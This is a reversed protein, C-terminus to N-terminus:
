PEEKTNLDGNIAHIIEKFDEESTPTFFAPEYLDRGSTLAAGPQANSKEMLMRIGPAILYVVGELQIKLESDGSNEIYVPLGATDWVYFELNGGQYPFYRLDYHSCWAEGGAWCLVSDQVMGVHPHMEGRLHEGTEPAVDMADFYYEHNNGLRLLISGCEAECPTTKKGAYRGSCAELETLWQEYGPIPDNDTAARQSYDYEAMSVHFKTNKSEFIYGDEREPDRSVQRIPSTHIFMGDPLKRHGTVVGYLIVRGGTIAAVHWQYLRTM